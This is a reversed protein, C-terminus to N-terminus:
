ASLVVSRGSTVGSFPIRYNSTESADIWGNKMLTKIASEPSQVKKRIEIESVGTNDPSDLLLALIAARSAFRTQGALKEMEQRAKAPTVCLKYVKKTGGRVQRKVNLVTKLAQARTCGYTQHMWDALYLMDLEVVMGDKKIEHIAKMKSPDYDTEKSFGVVYGRILRNGNGFPVMVQSGISIMESMVEPIVYQFVRDLSELSRDIIIDAYKM